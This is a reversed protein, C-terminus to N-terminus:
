VVVETTDTRGVLRKSVYILTALTPRDNIQATSITIPRVHQSDEVLLLRQSDDWNVVADAFPPSNPHRISELDITNIVELLVAVALILHQEQDVRL